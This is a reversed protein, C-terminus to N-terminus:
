LVTKILQFIAPQRKADPVTLLLQYVGPALTALELPYRSAGPKLSGELVRRGSQDFLDYRLETYNMQEFAITCSTTAPNPFIRVPNDAGLDRIPVITLQSQHFGQTLVNQSNAITTMVAEGITAGITIGGVTGSHGGAAVVDNQLSVQASLASHMWPLMLSLVISLIRTTRMMKIYKTNEIPLRTSGLTLQPLYEDEPQAQVFYLGPAFDDMQLLYLCDLM